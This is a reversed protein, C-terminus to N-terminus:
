GTGSLLKPVPISPLAVQPAVPRPRLPRVRARPRKKPPAPLARAGGLLVVAPVSVSGRLSEASRLEEKSGATAWGVLFALGFVAAALLAALLVVEATGPLVLRRGLFPGTTVDEVDTQTGSVLGPRV